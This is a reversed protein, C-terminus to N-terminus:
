EYSRSNGRSNKPALISSFIAQIGTGKGKYYQGKKM